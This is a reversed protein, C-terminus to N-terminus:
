AIERTDEPSRGFIGLQDREVFGLYELERLLARVALGPPLALSMQLDEPTAPLAKLVLRAFIEWSKLADSRGEGAAAVLPTAARKRALHRQQRCAPGCVEADRRMSVRLSRHCQQCFRGSPAPDAPSRQAQAAEWPGVLSGAALALRDSLFDSVFLEKRAFAYKLTQRLNQQLWANGVEM